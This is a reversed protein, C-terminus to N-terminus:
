TVNKSFTLKKHRNVHKLCLLKEKEIFKLIQIKLGISIPLHVHKQKGFLFKSARKRRITVYFTKGSFEGFTKKEHFRLYEDKLNYWFSHRLIYQIDVITIKHFYILVM